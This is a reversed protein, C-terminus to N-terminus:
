PAIPPYSMVVFPISLNGAAIAAVLLWGLTRAIPTWSKHNLGLTQWVSQTGHVLHMLLLLNCITYLAVFGVQGFSVRLMKYVDHHGAQDQYQLIDNSVGMVEVPLGITFHFLHFLIFLGVVIGSVPMIKGFVTSKQSRKMAYRSPRAAKNKMTLRFAFGIHLFVAGILTIRTGWLLAPTSKLFHGYDNIQQGWYGDPPAPLFVQLNGAMHGIVFGWMIVGTLAVLIKAGISSGFFDLVLRFPNFSTQTSM